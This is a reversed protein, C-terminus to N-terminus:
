RKTEAARSQRHRSTGAIRGAQSSTYKPVIKGFIKRFAALGDPNLLIDLDVTTRLHGHAGVALAGVVAFPIGEEDLAKAIREAAIHIPSQGM